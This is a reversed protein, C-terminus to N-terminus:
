WKKVADLMSYRTDLMWYGADLMLAQNMVPSQKDTTTNRRDKGL